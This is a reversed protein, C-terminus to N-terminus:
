AGQKEHVGAVLLLRDFVGRDMTTKTSVMAVSLGDEAKKAAVSVTSTAPPRMSDDVTASIAWSCVPAVFGGFKGGNDEAEHPVTWGPVAVLREM